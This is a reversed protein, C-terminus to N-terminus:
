REGLPQVHQELETEDRAAGADHAGLGLRRVREVQGVPRAELQELGDRRARRQGGGDLDPVRDRDLLGDDGQLPVVADDLLGALGLDGLRAGM